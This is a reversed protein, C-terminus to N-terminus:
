AIERCIAALLRPDGLVHVTYSTESGDGFDQSQADAAYFRAPGRGWYEPETCGWGRIVEIAERATLIENVDADCQDFEFDRHGIRFGHTEVDGNEASEPSVRQWTISVSVETKKM